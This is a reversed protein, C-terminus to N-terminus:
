EDLVNRITRAIERKTLPKMAFAKIGAAKAKDADVLHSFGTCMIIPMDARLALVEKALDAGTMGPMTQDTIVLDFRSPDGKFLALAETSSMRSFVEYGLEALIDEGMEVLAAEDDVFLIRESGTPIEDDCGTDTQLEGAIKPLYVTFTSGKALKSEVLICGDHQKVIGHVVSLGLGSGEGVNKTTFFPDFIKDMVDRSMGTGTDRVSLKMYLGPKIGHPDGDSPSVSYDKLDIDLSGGKERMAYAANTCLNMLVQQIQTPDALILGSEGLTNVRISITAPITARILKITEEVIGGLRLPKKEQETKRSFTLMQRVLERGRIGAEMIRQLHHADRSAKPAHDAVLETFGIIAALINNFDHAIGGSMTGLAEMKQAQRLQQEAREREVIEEKLKEYAKRLEETREEVRLELEDHAKQLAEQAKKIGTVDAGTTIFYEGLPVSTFRFYKDVPPPFYDDFSCPVNERMIKQVVAMYHDTAGPYIEDATRGITDELSKRGWTKLAPPNVDVVQWTKIQGSEDRVLKWFHVEEAMNEFLNRYKAESERLAEEAQKRETIDTLVAGFRGPETRFASVRFCRGLPEFWEEFQAPEGTLAVKGYREFWIPEAQPFLELTTRGIIDAAKLGTQREFAPNVALYRLDYPRGSEDCIIEDVAFGETMTEFLTRYREESERLSEEAQKRDTIDRAYVRAVSFQPVLHITEGLVRNGLVVERDLTMENKKDWDRLIADLDHPLLAKLDGKDLGLKGLIMQSGPNSFTIAGAVDMEIVPSPNLQPYSALRETREEARERIMLVFGISSLVTAGLLAVLGPNRFTTAQLVPLQGYPLTLAELLRNLMFLAMLLFAFGTLWCSRRERIQVNRLLARVIAGIQLVSLVSIFIIRYLLNDVYVSFYWFFIFTAAVPFLLIGTKYPRGQFERVAAYLFSYSATLCTQAVVISLFDGIIGRLGLLVWFAGQFAWGLAWPLTGDRRFRGAQLTLLAAGVIFCIAGLAICMTRVDLIM